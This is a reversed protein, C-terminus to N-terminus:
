IKPTKSRIALAPLAWQQKSMRCTLKFKDNLGLKALQRLPFDPCKIKFSGPRKIDKFIKESFV